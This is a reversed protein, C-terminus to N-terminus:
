SNLLVELIEQLEKKYYMETIIDVGGIFEGNIYVQPITLWNSYTKLEEKMSPSCLINIAKYPVNLENLIEIAKISYICKPNNAEGKIFIVIAYNNIINDINM